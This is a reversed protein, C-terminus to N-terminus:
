HGLIEFLVLGYGTRKSDRSDRIGPNLLHSCVATPIIMRITNRDLNSHLDINPVSSPLSLTVLSDQQHFPADSFFALRICYFLRNLHSKKM